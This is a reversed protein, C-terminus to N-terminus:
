PVRKGASAPADAPNLAPNGRLPAITSNPAAVPPGSSPAAGVGTPAFVKSPMAPPPTAAPSPAPPPLPIPTRQVAPVGPLAPPAAASAAAETPLKLVMRVQAGDGVIAERRSVEQVVFGPAVETGVALPRPPQGDVSVLVAGRGSESTAIVGSLVFRSAAAPAPGAAAAPQAGLLRALAAQRATPDGAPAQALATPVRPAAGRGMLRSGWYVVSAAALAWVGATLLRVTWNGQMGPNKISDGWIELGVQVPLGTGQADECL